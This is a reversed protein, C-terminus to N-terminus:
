VDSVRSRPSYPAVSNDDMNKLRFGLMIMVIGFTIAYLGIMWVVALAGAGPAVILLIGFLISIAGALGLWIENDIEKRLQYAASIEMVGTVISWFAIVYLLALATLGPWVSALVGAVIGVVGELALLWWRNNAHRSMWSMYLSSVGEVFAYAGFLFILVALTLGPIVLAAIGFVVALAGRLVLMWWNKRM